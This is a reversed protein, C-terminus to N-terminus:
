NRVTLTFNTIIVQYEKLPRKAPAKAPSGDLLFFKAGSCPDTATPGFDDPIVTCKQQPNVSSCRDYAVYSNDPRRYIILGAVGNNNVLLVENEKNQNFEIHTTHYYVYVDPIRDERDKNCSLFMIVIFLFRLQLRM